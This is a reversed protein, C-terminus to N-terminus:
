QEPDRCAAKTWQGRPLVWPQKRQARGQAACGRLLLHTQLICERWTEMQGCYPKDEGRQEKRISTVM